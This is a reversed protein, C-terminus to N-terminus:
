SFMFCFLSICSTSKISVKKMRPCGQAMTILIMVLFVFKKTCNWLGCIFDLRFPNWEKIKDLDLEHPHAARFEQFEKELGNSDFEFEEM